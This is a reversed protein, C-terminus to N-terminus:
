LDHLDDKLRRLEERRAQATEIQHTVQRALMELLWYVQELKFEEDEARAKLVRLCEVINATSWECPYKVEPIETAPPTNSRALVKVYEPEELLGTATAFFPKSEVQLEDIPLAAGPEDVPAPSPKFSPRPTPTAGRFFLHPTPLPDHPSPPPQPSPSHTPTPDPQWKRALIKLTLKKAPRTVPEAPTVKSTMISKVRKHSPGAEGVTGSNKREVGCSRSCKRKAKQCRKCSSEPEGICRLNAQACTECPENDGAVHPRKASPGPEGEGESDGKDDNVDDALEDEESTAKQKGNGKSTSGSGGGTSHAAGRSPNGETDEPAHDQGEGRAAQGCTRMSPAKALREAELHVREEVWEQYDEFVDNIHFRRQGEPQRLDAIAIVTGGKEKANVVREQAFSSQQCKQSDKKAHPSHDEDGNMLENQEMTSEKTMDRLNADHVKPISIKNEDVYKWWSYIGAWTQDWDAVWEYIAELSEEPQPATDILVRVHRLAASLSIIAQDRMSFVPRTNCISYAQM